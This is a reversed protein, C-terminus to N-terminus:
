VIRVVECGGEFFGPTLNKETQRVWKGLTIEQWELQPSSKHQKRFQKMGEGIQCRGSLGSGNFGQEVCTCSSGSLRRQGERPITQDLCNLKRLTSIKNRRANGTGRLLAMRWPLSGRLKQGSYQSM